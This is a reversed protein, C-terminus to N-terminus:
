AHAIKLSALVRLFRDKSIYVGEKAQVPVGYVKARLGYLAAYLEKDRDSLKKKAADTLDVLKTSSAFDTLEAVKRLSKAKTYMTSDLSILGANTVVSTLHEYAGDDFGLYKYASVDPDSDRMGVKKFNLHVFSNAELDEKKTALISGISHVTDVLNYGLLPALYEIFENLEATGKDVVLKYSDWIRGSEGCITFYNEKPRPANILESAGVICPIGMSRAVVAAHSTAGGKMTIIADALAFCPLDKPTTEEAVFVRFPRSKAEQLEALSYCAYGCVAGACVGLGEYTHEGASVEVKTARMKDLANPDLKTILEPLLTAMPVDKYTEVMGKFLTISASATRKASRCQLFFLEGDQVTFEVDLVDLYTRELLTVSDFLQKYIPKNWHWMEDLNLPTVKGSVVDEGQAKVLYEGTLKAEGTTPNRSFVVGTCSQDNQNGFVMRQIICATSEIHQLGNITRYLKARETNFSKFVNDVCKLYQQTLSLEGMASVFAEGTEAHDTLASCYTEVFRNKCDRAFNEDQYKNTFARYTVLDLIGVNLITDMMGAMSAAAGSRVSCLGSNLDLFEQVFLSDLVDEAKDRQHKSFTVSTSNWDKGVTTPLIVAKPVNLGLAALICLSYGKGGLLHPAILADNIKAVVLITDNVLTCQHEGITLYKLNFAIPSM